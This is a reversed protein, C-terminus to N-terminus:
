FFSFYCVLRYLLVCFGKPRQGEQAEKKKKKKRTLLNKNHSQDRQSDDYRPSGGVKGPDGGNKENTKHKTRSLFFFPSIFDWNKKITSKTLYCFHVSRHLRCPHQLPSSHLDECMFVCVRSCDGGYLWNKKRCQRDLVSLAPHPSPERHQLVTSLRVCPRRDVEEGGM